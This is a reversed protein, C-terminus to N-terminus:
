APQQRSAGHQDMSQYNRMADNIGQEASTLSERFKMLMPLFGAGDTAVQSVHPKMADAGQSTGLPLEHTLQELAGRRDDVWDRMDRIANLLAQGGTPSVAFSGSAAARALRGMSRGIAGFDAAGAADDM